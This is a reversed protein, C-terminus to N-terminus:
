KRVWNETLLETNSWIRCVSSRIHIKKMELRLGTRLSLGECLREQLVANPLVFLPIQLADQTMLSHDQVVGPGPLVLGLPVALFGFTQISTLLSRHLDELDLRLVLPQHPIQLIALQTQHAKREMGAEGHQEWQLYSSKRGRCWSQLCYMTSRHPPKFGVLYM